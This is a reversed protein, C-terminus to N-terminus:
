KSVSRKVMDLCIKVMRSTFNIKEDKIKEVSFISKPHIRTSKLRKGTGYMFAIVWSWLDLKKFIEPNALDDRTISEIKRRLSASSFAFEPINKIFELRPMEIENGKRTNGKMTDSSHLYEIGLYKLNKLWKGNQKVWGSKPESIYLGLSEVDKKFKEIDIPKDSLILGDDIYMTLEPWEEYLNRLGICSLIPSLGMGQPLGRFLGFTALELKRQAKRRENILRSEFLKKNEEYIKYVLVKYFLQWKNQLSKPSQFLKFWIDWFEKEGEYIETLYEKPHKGELSLEAISLLRETQEKWIMILNNRDKLAQKREKSWTLFSWFKDDTSAARAEDWIAIREKLAEHMLVAMSSKMINESKKILGQPILGNLSRKVVVWPIM